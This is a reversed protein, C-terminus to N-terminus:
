FAVLQFLDLHKFCSLLKGLSLNVVFHVRIKEFYDIFAM